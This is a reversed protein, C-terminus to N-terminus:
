LTSRRYEQSPREEIDSLRLLGCGTPTHHAFIPLLRPISGSRRRRGSVTMLHEGSNDDVEVASKIGFADKKYDDVLKQMVPDRVTSVEHVRLTKEKTNLFTSHM